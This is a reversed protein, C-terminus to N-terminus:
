TFPGATWEKRMAVSSCPSFCLRFCPSFSLPLFLFSRNFYVWNLLATPHGTWVSCKYNDPRTRILSPREVLRLVSKSITCILCWTLGSAPTGFRVRPTSRRWLVDLTVRVAPNQKNLLMMYSQEDATYLRVASSCTGAFFGAAKM